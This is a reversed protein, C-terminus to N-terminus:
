SGIRILINDEKYNYNYRDKLLSQFFTVWFKRNTNTKSHCGHCLCICNQPITLKKNYNIHHIHLARNLKERHIECLMCIQNDRKRIARKFKNNWKQDYPERSFGKWDKVNIDQKIASMKKRTELKQKKGKMNSKLGKKILSMKRKHEESM